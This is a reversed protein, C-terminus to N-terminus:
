DFYKQALKGMDTETEYFIGDYQFMSETIINLEKVTGDQDTMQIGWFGYYPNEQEAKKVATIDKLEEIIQIRNEETFKEMQPYWKSVEEIQNVDLEKFPQEKGSQQNSKQVYILLIAIGATILFCILIGKKM